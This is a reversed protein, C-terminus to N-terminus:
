GGLLTRAAVGAASMHDLYAELLDHCKVRLASLEAEPAGRLVAAQYAQGTSVVEIWTATSLVVHDRHSAM